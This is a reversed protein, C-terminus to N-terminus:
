REEKKDNRQENVFEEFTQSNEWFNQFTYMLTKTLDGHEIVMATLTSTPVRNELTYVVKQHDFLILKLPLKKAIRVEEGKDRFHAVMEIFDNIRNNEIEYITRYKVGRKLSEAQTMNLEDLKSTDMAYPPKSFSCVLKKSAAEMEEVRKVISPITRLVQIFDLPNNNSERKNYITELEQSLEMAEESKQAFSKSLQSLAVEPPVVSYKKVGGLHESCFNHEVLNALLSYVRPRSIQTLKAIESATAYERKLLLCYIDAEYKSIGLDVLRSLLTKM